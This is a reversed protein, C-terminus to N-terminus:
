ELLGLARARAVAQTRSHVDLKNYLHKLHTQITSPAVVLHRAVAQTSLGAAILRLVDLERESLANLADTLATPNAAPENGGPLAALLRDTFARLRGPLHGLLDKLAVGDDLFLRVNGEPEALDLAAALSNAATRPQDLALEARAELVRMEAVRGLRGVAEAPPRLRQLLGLAEAPRREGLLWRALALLGAENISNPVTDPQLGHAAFFAAAAAPDSQRSWLVAQIDHHALFSTRRRLAAPALKAAAQFAAQAAEADGRAHEILSLRTYGSVRVGLSRGQEGLAV